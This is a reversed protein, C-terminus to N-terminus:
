GSVADDFPGHRRPYRPWAPIIRSLLIHTTVALITFPLVVVLPFWPGPKLLLPYMSLAIAPPHYLGARPLAFLLISAVIAAAWPGHTFAAVVTGLAASLTSGAIVPLPQAVPQQPLYILISLMAACPPVLFISVQNLPRDMAALLMLLAAAWLLAGTSVRTPYLERKIWQM